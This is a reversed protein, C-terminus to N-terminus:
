PHVQLRQRTRSPRAHQPDQVRVRQGGQPQHCLPLTAPGEVQVADTTTPATSTPRAWVVVMSTTWSAGSGNPAHPGLTPPTSTRPCPSPTKTASNSTAVTM